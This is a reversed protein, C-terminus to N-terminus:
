YVGRIRTNYYRGPSDSKQLGEWVDPPVTFSYTQGNEFEIMLEQTDKDYGASLSRSLRQIPADAM